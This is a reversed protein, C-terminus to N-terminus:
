DRRPHDFIHGEGKVLGKGVPTLEIVDGFSFLFNDAIGGSPHRNTTITFDM